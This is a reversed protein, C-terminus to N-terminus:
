FQWEDIWFFKFLSQVQEYVSFIIRQTLMLIKLAQWDPKVLERNTYKLIINKQPFAATCSEIKKQLTTNTIYPLWGKLGM